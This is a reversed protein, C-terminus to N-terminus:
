EHCKGGCKCGGTKKLPRFLLLISPMIFFDAALALTFAFCALGGFKMVGMVNSFLLVFFGCFLTMTTFLLPRGTTTFTERLAQEYCHTKEFAERYHFLFHITDDVVAGIIIASFSMLPMDMYIGAFGMFGLTMLVPFINPIMSLIGLRLSRLALCMLLSVSILAAIFSQRQGDMLLDNMSRTWDLNGSIEVRVGPGFVDKSFATIGESLLRVQRTDLSRTKATLRAIRNDFSIMKDLERGNSMEYLLLYQAVTDNNEPLRYRAPEGGHMAENIKKLIDLVSVTKTVDANADLYEQLREAKRLFDLEKIGNPTGTDLMIEVSMTGGMREDVFDYSQRLPLKPSLTHATNTEVELRSYGYLAVVTMMVAIVFIAKPYRLNIGCVGQLLKDFIDQAKSPHAMEANFGALVAAPAPSTRTKDYSYLVLVLLISLFYACLAGISAYVGMEQFPRIDAALFSLFGAATTLSTYLCPLGTDAMARCLAERVGLGARRQQHFFAISHMSDGICLCALLVPILIIFLNLTYGLVQIMGMTWILSLLITLIPALVDKFRRGILYLVLMQLLLCTAFFSASETFSIENYDVHLVPQGVIHIDLPAYQPGALAERVGAVVASRPDLAGEPYAKLELLMGATKGDPSIYSNHYIKEKLAKEKLEAGQRDPDAFDSITIGEADAEIYEANGLWTVSRLYPVKRRIEGCLDALLRRGQESFIHEAEFVLYVFDDNGFIKQFQTLRRLAPDAETFWIESSNDFQLDQMKWFFFGTLVMVLVILAIRLRQVHFALSSFFTDASMFAGINKIATRARVLSKGRALCDTKGHLV